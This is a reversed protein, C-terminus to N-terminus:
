DEGVIWTHDDVWEPFRNTIDDLVRTVEGTALDVVSASRSAQDTFAIRTGDPSWRAGFVDGQVGAVRRPNSGDADALWMNGLYPSDLSLNPEFYVITRGDPSIRGGIAGGLVMTPTGGSVPVSWIDWGRGTGPRPATFFITRGDPGFHPGMYWLGSDAPELNTVRTTAGTAVDVVFIDGALNGAGRVQYVIKSGDPSFEPGVAAGDSGTEELPRTNAGDANAVFIVFKGGDNGAYAVMSGDPSVAIGPSLTGPSGIGGVLTRQGTDLDFLYAGPGPSVTPRHAPENTRERTDTADGALVVALIAVVVLVASLAITGVKRNRV